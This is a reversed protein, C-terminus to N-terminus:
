IWCCISSLSSIQLCFMFWEFKYNIHGAGVGKQAAQQDLKFYAYCRDKYVICM